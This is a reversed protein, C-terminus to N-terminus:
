NTDDPGAPGAASPGDTWSRLLLRIVTGEGQVSEATVGGGWSEVVRRVIALGLGTGTSRTSFRPEFIRGILDDSIGSGDDRICVEVGGPRASAEVVVAGEVAIAARSNELLNLLVEKFEAERAAVLSLGEPISMTFSVPGQGGSDYLTIVEGAIAGVDLGSLPAEGAAAPAGFKSFSRAIADLRDIEGLIADVNRNLVPDFDDRQDNWARQIHQVSLKIPTLPNKVEHAVQRAMEGWALVRETRLEDTVDEMSLVMGGAGERSIRRARVRLRRDGFQLETTAELVGDRQCGSVWEVLEGRPGDEAELSEGVVATRGMLAQARPNVLTVVNEPDLAIIGTAVEEVIAQTRRTTRVLARRARQIRLVMRNFAGFVSGFEDVRDGPLRIKLNGSGVRESAAQLIQMPRTLTRGVLLALVFSVGAGLVAILAVLEAVERGRLATAGARLPALTGVVDGDPLRSFADLYTTNGLTSLSTVLLEKRQALLQHEDYPMWGEYLGLDILEAASGGRLEGDRYELLEAGVRISLKSMSRDMDDYFAAADSVVRSVLATATRQTAGDLTRFVMTGFLANSVMFFAFLALTVRSRFTGLPKWKRLDVPRRRLMFQGLLWILGILAVDAFLILGARVSLVLPTPLHLDYSVDQAGEPYQVVMRAEWGHTSRSWELDGTEPVVEGELFPILTLPSGARTDMGGVLAALPSALGVDRRPPLVATFVRGDRLPARALLLADVQSLRRVEPGFLAEALYLSAALPREGTMGLPLEFDPVGDPGWVTLWISTGDLALASRSWADFLIFRDDAGEADLALVLELLDDVQHEPDVEDPMGLMQLDEEVTLRLAELRHGWAHVQAASGGIMAAVTWVVWAGNPRVVAPFAVAAVFTPIAWLGLVWPATNGQTAVSWGGFGWVALLAGGFALMAATPRVTRRTSRGMRIGAAVVIALAVAFAMQYALWSSESGALFAPDSWRGGLADLAPFLTLVMLGSVWPGARPRRWSLAALSFALAVTVFVVRDLSVAFMGGLTLGGGGFVGGLPSLVEVPVMVAVILPVAHLVWRRHAGRPRGTALVFWILFALALVVVGYATRVEARRAEPLPQLVTLSLLPRGEWGFDLVSPGVARDPSLLRLDEGTAAKFRTVFDDQVGATAAPLGSKMLAAAVATSGDPLVRTFYLYSFLPRDRYWYALEGRRVEEPISGRHVGDWVRFEGSPGYLAVADLGGARRIRGLTRALEKGDQRSGAEALGELAEEGRLLVEDLRQDVADEARTRRQQWYDQFDSDIRHLQIQGFLVVLLGVLVLGSATRRRSSAGVRSVLGVVGGALIIALWPWADWRSWGVLSLAALWPGVTAWVGLRSPPRAERRSINLDDTQPETM